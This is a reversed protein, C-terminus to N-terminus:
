AEVRHGSDRRRGGSGPHLVKTLERFTDGGLKAADNVVVSRHHIGLVSPDQIGLLVVQIGARECYQCSDIALAMNDPGGDTFCMLVKRKEPRNLLDKAAILIAIGLPTGGGCFGCAAAMMPLARNVPENWRKVRRLTVAFPSLGTADAEACGETGSIWKLRGLLDSRENRTFNEFISVCNAHGCQGLTISFAAASLMAQTMVGNYSMSGSGDVLLYCATDPKRKEVRKRLVRDGSRIALQALRAPDPMGRARGGQWWCREEVMLLQALRQRMPGGAKKAAETFRKAWDEEQRVRRFAFSDIDMDLTMYQDPLCPRSNHGGPNALEKLGEGIARKLEEGM